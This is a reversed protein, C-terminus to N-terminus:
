PRSNIETYSVFLKSCEGPIGTAINANFLKSIPWGDPGPLTVVIPEVKYDNGNIKLIGTEFDVVLKRIEIEIM